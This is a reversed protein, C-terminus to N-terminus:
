GLPVMSLYRELLRWTEVLLNLSPQLFVYFYYVCFTDRLHKLTIGLDEYEVWLARNSKPMTQAIYYSFNTINQLLSLKLLISTSAQSKGLSHKGRFSFSGDQLRLYAFCADGAFLM